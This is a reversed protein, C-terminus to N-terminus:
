TKMYESRFIGFKREENFATPIVREYDVYKGNIPKFPIGNIETNSICVSSGNKVALGVVDRPIIVAGTGDLNAVNKVIVLQHGNTAVVVKKDFDVFIGNLYYRIDNKAACSLVAKLQVNNM